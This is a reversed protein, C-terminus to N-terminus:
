ESYKTFLAKALELHEDESDEWIISDFPKGQISNPKYKFFCEVHFPVNKKGEM